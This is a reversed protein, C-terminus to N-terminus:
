LIYDRFTEIKSNSFSGLINLSAIRWLVLFSIVIWKFIWGFLSNDSGRYKAIRFKLSIFTVRRNRLFRFDPKPRLLPFSTVLPNSRWRNAVDSDSDPLSWFDSSSCSELGLLRSLLRSDALFHNILPLRLSERVQRGRGHNDEHYIKSLDINSRSFNFIFQLSYFSLFFFQFFSILNQHIFHTRTYFVKIWGTPLLTILIWMWSNFVPIM